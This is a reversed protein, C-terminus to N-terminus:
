PEKFYRRGIAWAIGFLLSTQSLEMWTLKQFIIEVNAIKSIFGLIICYVSIVMFTLMVKDKM